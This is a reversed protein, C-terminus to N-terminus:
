YRFVRLFETLIDKARRILHRLRKVAVEMTEVVGATNTFIYQGKKVDSYAGFGILVGEDITLESPAYLHELYSVIALHTGSHDTQNCPVAMAPSHYNPLTFETTQLLPFLCAMIYVLGRAFPM